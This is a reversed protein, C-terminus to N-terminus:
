LYREIIIDLNKQDINTTSLRIIYNKDVLIEYGCLNCPVKFIDQTIKKNDFVIKLNQNLNIKQFLIKNFDNSEVYHYFLLIINLNNNYKKAFRNLMDISALYDNNLPLFIFLTLRNKLYDKNINNNYIDKINFDPITDGFILKNNILKNYNEFYFNQIEYFYQRQKDKIDINSKNSINFIINLIIVFCFILYLILIRNRKM